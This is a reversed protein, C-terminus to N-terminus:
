SHKGMNKKKTTIFGIIVIIIIIGVIIYVIKKNNFFITIDSHNKNENNNNISNAETNNSTDNDRNENKNVKNEDVKIGESKEANEQINEKINEQQEENYEDQVNPIIQEQSIPASARRVYITYVSKNGNKATVNITVKNTGVSLENNGNVSINADNSNPVANVKISSISNDVKVRYIKNDNEDQVLEYGSPEISISKLSTDNSEAKSIHPISLIIFFLSVITILLKYKRM